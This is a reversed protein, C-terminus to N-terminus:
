TDPNLCTAKTGAPCLIRAYNTMTNRTPNAVANSSSPKMITGAEGPNFPPAQSPHDLGLIHGLEHALLTDSAGLDSMVVNGSAGCGAGIPPLTSAGGSSAMNNAVLFVEVGAVSRLARIATQDAASNGGTKLPTDITVSSLGNFTVGLKGWIANAEKLRRKWSTGTPSADAASTRLFVPQLDLTRSVGPNACGAPAKKIRQVVPNAATFSSNAVAGQQVVHTLEHALLKRDGENEGKGLGIHHGYTFAKAQIQTATEQTHSDTHLRVHSFDEGFRPEMYKRTMYSLPHGGSQKLSIDADFGARDGTSIRQIHNGPHPQSDQTRLVPEPMRIVQDAIRDAEREYVDNTPGVKLKTQIDKQKDESACSSCTGGCACKRQLMPKGFTSTTQELSSQNEAVSQMYSNGFNRPLFTSSRIPDTNRVMGSAGRRISYDGDAHSTPTRDPTVCSFAGRNKISPVGDGRKSMLEKIQM